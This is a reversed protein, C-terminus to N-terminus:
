ATKILDRVDRRPGRASQGGYGVRFLMQVSHDPPVGLESKFQAQLKQMESYEELLQSLPQMQAGLSAITLAARAYSRGALIQDLRTNTPTVLAFFAAATQTQRRVSDIAGRAFLGNPDAARSRSLLINEALWKKIGSTGNQGLGFGDRKSNLEENSFRFWAATETNRDKSSVEIQMAEVCLQSIATRSSRDVIAELYGGGTSVAAQVIKDIQADSLQKDYYPTRNTHRLPIAAFLPDRSAESSRHVSFRAVPVEALLDAAYQGSPFYTVKLDDGFQRAAIEMLEVFCGHSIHTQRAFPDVLPLLRLRDIYLDLEGAPARKMLWPQTNHSSPAFVAHHLARFGPDDDMADKLDPITSSGSSASGNYSCSLLVASLAVANMAIFDRRNM